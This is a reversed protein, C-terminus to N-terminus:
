RAVEKTQEKELRKVLEDLSEQTAPRDRDPLADIFTALDQIREALTAGRYRPYWDNKEKSAPKWSARLGQGGSKINRTFQSLEDWVDGVKNFQFGSAGIKKGIESFIVWDEKAIGPPKATAKMKLPKMEFNVFTGNEEVFTTSPMIVSSLQIWESPFPSQYVITPVKEFGDISISGDAVYLVDLEGKKAKERMEVLHLGDSFNGGDWFKEAISQADKATVSSPGPLMEPRLGAKMVGAENGLPFLPLLIGDKGALEVLVHLSQIPDKLELLRPGVLIAGKRARSTKPDHESLSDLVSPIQKPTAKIYQTAWRRLNVGVEGIVILPIGKKVVSYVAKAVPQHTKVFDGGVSLIWKVDKLGDLTGIREFDQVGSHILAAFDSGQFDVNSSRVCARALKNFLYASETSMQPSALFGVRRPDAETLIRSVENIADDWSVPVDVGDQKVYPTKLRDSANVLSPICFRGLVCMHGYNPASEYRGPGSGMVREWKIDLETQCGVACLACTTEISEDPTGIWKTMRPTLAGTPCVDVCAGCFWCGSDIHSAGFATDVRTEHGREAFTIASTGRVEDCVRVCRGCLICLNYDRDFFPDSREIPISKYHPQYELDKTDLIEAVERLECFERNPCTNCGTVAGSRHSETRYELCGPWEYCVICASPHERLILQLINRKMKSLEDSKTKVVMGDKPPTTCSAVYGRWGEIEVLCMRCGGYAELEPHDCLTPIQVGSSRIVDLVSRTDKDYEVKKGDITMTPM